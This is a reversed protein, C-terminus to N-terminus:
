DDRRDSYLDVEGPDFDGERIEEEKRAKKVLKGLGTGTRKNLGEGDM